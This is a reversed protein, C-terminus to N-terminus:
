QKATEAKLLDIVNVIRKGSGLMSAVDEIRNMNGREVVIASAEEDEDTQVIEGNQIIIVSPVKATSFLKGLQKGRTTSIDAHAFLVNTNSGEMTPSGEFSKRALRNFQPTMRHCKQCYSATLFLICSRKSEIIQTNLESVSHIQTVHPSTPKQRNSPRKTVKITTSNASSTSKPTTEIINTMTSGGETTAQASHHAHELAKEAVEAKDVVKKTSREAAPASMAKRRMSFDVVPFGFRSNGEGRPWTKLETLDSLSWGRVFVDKNQHPGNENEDCKYIVNKDLLTQVTTGFKLPPPLMQYKVSKKKTEIESQYRIVPDRAFLLGRKLVYQQSRTVTSIYKSCGHLESLLQQFQGHLLIDNDLVSRAQGMGMEDGLTDILTDFEGIAETFGLSMKGVAPPIIDLLLDTQSNTCVIDSPSPISWSPRASVLSVSNGLSVHAKALYQAYDGAGVVVVKNKKESSSSTSCHVGLLSIAATSIADAPSVKSPVIAISDRHLQLGDDFSIVEGSSDKTAEVGVIQSGKEIWVTNDDNAHKLDSNLTTTVFTLAGIRNRKRPSRPALDKPLCHEQGDITNVVDSSSYPSQQQALSKIYYSLEAGDLVFTQRKSVAQLAFASRRTYDYKTTCVSNTYRYTNVPAFAHPCSPLLALVVCLSTGFLM